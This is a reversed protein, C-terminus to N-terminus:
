AAQAAPGPRTCLFDLVAKRCQICGPDGALAVRNRPRALTVPQGIQNVFQGRAVSLKIDPPAHSCCKRTSFVAEALQLDIFHNM